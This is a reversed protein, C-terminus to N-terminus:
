GPHCADEGAVLVEHPDGEALRGRRRANGQSPLAGDPFRATQLILERLRLTAENRHFYWALMLPLALKMMESPQFRVIGLDLWRQAGKGVYGIADVVILLVIGTVYLWPALRRLFNPTCNALALMAAMGLGIRMLTRLVTPLHQGSASYQVLLAFLLLLSLGVLLPGDLRLTALLRATNSLTRRASRSEGIEERIM